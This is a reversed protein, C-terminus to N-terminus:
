PEISVPYSAVANISEEFCEASDTKFVTLEGYRSQIEPSKAYGQKMAKGM